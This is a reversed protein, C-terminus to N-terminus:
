RPTSCTPMCKVKCPGAYAPFSSSLRGAAGGGGATLPTDGTNGNDRKDLLLGVMAVPGGSPQHHCEGAAWQWEM